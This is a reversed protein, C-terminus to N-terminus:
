DEVQESQSGLIKNYGVVADIEQLRNQYFSLFLFGASCNRPNSSHHLLGIM